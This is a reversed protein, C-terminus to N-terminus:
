KSPAQAPRSFVAEYIMREANSGLVPVIFLHMTGLVDHHLEYTGQQLTRDGSGHFVLSFQELGRGTRVETVEALRLPISIGGHEIRFMTDVASRYGAYSIDETM